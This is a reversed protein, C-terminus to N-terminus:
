KEAIAILTDTIDLKKLIHEYANKLKQSNFEQWKMHGGPKGNALWFLHNALPYRQFGVINFSNFGSNRLFISLSERTHLILHESWFTFKRFSELEYFSLLADRAHPVEIILKGGENMLCYISKLTDIPNPLHEFVHFLTIVDFKKHSPIESISEYISYKKSLINRLELQPEVAAIEGAYKKILDLIGGLGTGIDLYSKNRILKNFQMFRRYDDDYTDALAIKRKEEDFDSFQAKNKYYTDDIKNTSLFIVGSRVCKLVKIDNRDRVEPYYEIVNNPNIIENDILLQKISDKM